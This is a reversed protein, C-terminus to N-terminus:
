AVRVLPVPPACPGILAIPRFPGRVLVLASQGAVDPVSGTDRVLLEVRRREGAVVVGGDANVRALAREVGRQEAAGLPGLVGTLPLAAGLVLAGPPLCPEPCDTTRSAPEQRQGLVGAVLVAVAALAVILRLPSSRGQATPAPARM